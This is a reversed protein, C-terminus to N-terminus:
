PLGRCRALPLAQAPGQPHYRDLRRRGGRGRHPRHVEHAGVRRRRLSRAPLFRNCKVRVRRRDMEEVLRIYHGATDNFVSDTFFVYPVQHEATLRQIDDVVAAPDRPRLAKGELLPYSCYDCIFSCGRKTQIPVITGNQMYYRLLAPDYLASPIESGTLPAGGRLIRHPPKEGRALTDALEVALREGEGVIGYDAGTYDLIAEPLISFGAGGLVVPAPTAQRIAAVLTRVAELFPKDNFINTSDVNRISVGVLGPPDARLADALQDLRSDHQLLDFQNVEHGARTLAAAVMGMGLPYTPYPTTATNSSALFVKM